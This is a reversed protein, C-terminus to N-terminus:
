TTNKIFFFMELTCYLVITVPSNRPLQSYTSLKSKVRKVGVTAMHTCGYLMRHWVPNLWGTMQLKQCGPVWLTWIDFIVFSPKVQDQVPHKIATDMHCCYQQRWLTLLWTTTDKTHTQTHCGSATTGLFATLWGKM